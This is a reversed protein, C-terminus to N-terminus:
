NQSRNLFKVKYDNTLPSMKKVLKEAEVKASFLDPARLSGIENWKQDYVIWVKEGHGYYRGASNTGRSDLTVRYLRVRHVKEEDM